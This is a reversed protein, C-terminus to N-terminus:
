DVKQKEEVNTWWYTGDSKEEKIWSFDEREKSYAPYKPHAYGTIRADNLSWRKIAVQDSTNGEITYLYQDDSYIVIGTHSMGSSLFFVIDGTVPKYDEAYQKSSAGGELTEIFTYDQVYHMIGKETCWKMGTYCGQYKCLIDNTLGAQHWCWSVFMACWPAGNNPYWEGYKQINDGTEHTGNEELAIHIFRSIYDAEGFGSVNLYYYAINQKDNTPYAYISVYGESVATIVGGESVRAVKENTSVWTLNRNSTFLTNTLPMTENVKMSGNENAGYIILNSKGNVITINCSTVIRSDKKSTLTITETGYGIAKVSNDSAIELIKDSGFTITYNSVSEQSDKFYLYTIDGKSMKKYTTYVIPAKDIVEFKFSIYIKPDSILYAEVDTTGAMLGKIKGFRDISIIDEDYIVFEFDSLEFDDFEIYTQSDVQLYNNELKYKIGDSVHCRSCINVHYDGDYIWDHGLPSIETFTTYDCRSCTDYEKYGSSTCNADQKEHHILDHGLPKGNTYGCKTCTSPTTCTAANYIHNTCKQNSKRCSTSLVLVFLLILTLFYINKKM